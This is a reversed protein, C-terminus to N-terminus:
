AGQLDTEILPDPGEGVWLLADGDSVLMTKAAPDRALGLLRGEVALAKPPDPLRQVFGGPFASRAPLRLFVRDPSTSSPSPGSASGSRAGAVKEYVTDVTLIPAGSDLTITRRVRM